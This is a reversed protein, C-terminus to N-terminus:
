TNGYKMFFGDSDLCHENLTEANYTFTFSIAFDPEDNEDKLRRSITFAALFGDDLYDEKNAVVLAVFNNIEDAKLHISNLNYGLEKVEDYFNESIKKAKKLNKNFLSKLAVEMENRGVEKGNLYANIVDNHTVVDTHKEWNRSSKHTTKSKTINPM